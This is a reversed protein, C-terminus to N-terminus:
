EAINFIDYFYEIDNELEKEMDEYDVFSDKDYACYVHKVTYKDKDDVKYATVIEKVHKKYKEIVVRYTDDEFNKEYYYVSSRKSLKYVYDPCKLIEEIKKVSMEPHKVNIHNKYNSKYLVIKNHLKGEFKLIMFKDEYYYEMKDGM